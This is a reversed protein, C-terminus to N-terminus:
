KECHHLEGNGAALFAGYIIINRLLNEFVRSQLMVMCSGMNVVEWIRGFVIALEIKSTQRLCCHSKLFHM